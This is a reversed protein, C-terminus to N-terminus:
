LASKLKIVANEWSNKALFVEAHQADWRKLSTIKELCNVMDLSIVEGLQYEKVAKSIFGVDLALTPKKQTAAEYLSYSISQDSLGRWYFDIYNAVNTADYDIFKDVIILNSCREIEDKIDARSNIYGKLDGVLLIYLDVGEKKASSILAASYDIHLYKKGYNTPCFGVITNENKIANLSKLTSILENEDTNQVRRYNSKRVGFNIYDIKSMCDPFQKHALPMLLEDMVFIRESYRCLYDRNKKILYPYHESTEKDVNHCFWIIKINFFRSISFTLQRSLFFLLSLFFSKKDNLYRVIIAEPKCRKLISKVLFFPFLISMYPSVSINIGYRIAAEKLNQTKDDNIMCYVNKNM